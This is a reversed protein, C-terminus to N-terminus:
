ATGCLLPQRFVRSRRSRACATRARRTACCAPSLSARFEDAFSKSRASKPVTRRRVDVIVGAVDSLRLIEGCERLKESSISFPPDCCAPKNDRWPAATRRALPAFLKPREAQGVFVAARAAHDDFLREAGIQGAGSLQVLDDVGHEVLLLDVADIMVEALFRHLVQEHQPKGVRDELRDPVAVVDVVHLDGHGLFDVDAAAAAVVVCGAHHAVHELVM